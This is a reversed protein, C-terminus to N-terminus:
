LFSLPNIFMSSVHKGNYIMFTMLIDNDVVIEMGHLNGLIPPPGRGMGEWRPWLRWLAVVFRAM